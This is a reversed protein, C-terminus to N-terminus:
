VQNAEIATDTVLLLWWWPVVVEGATLIYEGLRGRLMGCRAPLWWRLCLWGEYLGGEPWWILVMGL